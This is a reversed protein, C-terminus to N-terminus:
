KANYEEAIERAEIFSIPVYHKPLSADIWFSYASIGLCTYGIRIPLAQGEPRSSMDKGYISGILGATLTFWKSSRFIKSKNYKNVYVARDTDGIFEWFERISIESNNLYPAWEIDSNKGSTNLKVELIPNNDIGLIISSLISLFIFNIKNIL